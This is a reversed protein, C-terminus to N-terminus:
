GAKGADPANPVIEAVDVGAERAISVMHATGKGGPFAIVLAPKHKDLMKRNRIPGALKGYQKWDARMATTRICLGYAWENALTDAGTADGHVVHSPVGKMHILDSMASNFMAQDAFDRGGCILWTQGNIPIVSLM